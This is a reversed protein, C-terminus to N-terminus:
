ATADQKTLPPLRSLEDSINKLTAVIAKMVQEREEGALVDIGVAFTDDKLVASVIHRIHAWPELILRVELARGWPSSAFLLWLPTSGHERWLRFDMGVWAGIRAAKPFSIYRGIRDWSSVAKLGDISLVGDTVGIEVARQVVSNLHLLLAPTRQNTLATSDDAADCLARLQLLDNRRLPEDALESDIALLVKAWSTIALTPATGLTPGFDVTALHPVNVSPIRDTTSVNALNL